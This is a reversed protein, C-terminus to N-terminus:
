GPCKISCGFHGPVIPISDEWVSTMRILLVYPKNGYTSHLNEYHTSITKKKGNKLQFIIAELTSNTKTEARCCHLDAMLM